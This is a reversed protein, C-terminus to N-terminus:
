LIKQQDSMLLIYRKLKHSMATLWVEADFRDEFSDSVAIAKKLQERLESDVAQRKNQSAISLYPMLLMMTLIIIFYKKTHAVKGM